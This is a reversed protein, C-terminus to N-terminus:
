IYISIYINDTKIEDDLVPAEILMDLLYICIHVSSETITATKCCYLYYM